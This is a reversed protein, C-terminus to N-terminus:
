ARGQHVIELRDTPRHRLDQQRVRRWLRRRANQRREGTGRQSGGLSLFGLRGWGHDTAGRSLDAAEGFGAVAKRIPEELRSGGRGVTHPGTEGLILKLFGFDTTLPCLVTAKGAFAILGVQEGDLLDLLDVIEAKARELRSPVVDEALMSRSVDLCIMIQAGVHPLKEYSIGWQPRMLAVILALGTLGLYVLRLVRKGM